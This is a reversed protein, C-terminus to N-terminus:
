EKSDDGNLRKPVHTKVGCGSCFYDFGGEYFDRKVNNINGCCFCEYGRDAEDKVDMIMARLKKKFVPNSFIKESIDEIVENSLHESINFDSLSKKFADSNVFDRLFEDVMCTTVLSKFIDATFSLSM